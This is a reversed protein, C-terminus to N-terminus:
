RSSKSFYYYASLLRIAIDGFLEDKHHVAIIFLGNALCETPDGISHVRFIKPLLVINWWRVEM